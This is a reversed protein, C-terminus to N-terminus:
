ELWLMEGGNYSIAARWNAESQTKTVLRTSGDGMLVVVGNSRGAGLSPLPKGPGFDLDEPKTWEVAEGAEVLFVTNSTGDTISMLNLKNAFGPQKPKEFIAGDHSFGRYYTKGEGAKSKQQPTAYLHPM